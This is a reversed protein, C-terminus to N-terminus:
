RPLKVNDKVLFSMPFLPRVQMLFETAQLKTKFNKSNAWKTWPKDFKNM